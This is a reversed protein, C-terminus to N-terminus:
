TKGNYKRLLICPILIMLIYLYFFFYNLKYRNHNNLDSKRIKFRITKKENLKSSILVKGNHNVIASIGNNSVRILFKKFEISRLISQYFHQYPGQLNGFWADNTINIILNDQM